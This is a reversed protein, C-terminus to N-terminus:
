GMKSKVSLLLHHVFRASGPFRQLELDELIALQVPNEPLHTGILHDQGPQIIGKAM